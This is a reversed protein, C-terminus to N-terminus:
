KRLPPTPGSSFSECSVPSWPRFAATTGLRLARPRNLTILALSGRAEILVDERPADASGDATMQAERADGQVAKNGGASHMCCRM